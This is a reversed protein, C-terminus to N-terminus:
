AGSKTHGNKTGKPFKINKWTKSNWKYKPFSTFLKTIQGYFFYTPLM